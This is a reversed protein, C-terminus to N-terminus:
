AFIGDPDNTDAKKNKAAFAQILKWSGDLNIVERVEQVGLIEAALAPNVGVKNARTLLDGVNKVRDPLPDSPRKGAPPPPPADKSVSETTAAAQQQGPANGPAKRTTTTNRKASQPEDLFNDLSKEVARWYKALIRKWTEEDTGLDDGELPTTCTLALGVQAIATQGEISRRKVNELALDDELSRGKWGGGGGFQKKSVPQGQGDYIQVITRDPGYDRGPRPREEIDAVINAKGRVFTKLDGNFITLRIDKGALPDGEPLSLNVAHVRDLQKTGQSYPVDMEINTISLQQKPITTGQAM